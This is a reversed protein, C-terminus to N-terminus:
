SAPWDPLDDTPLQIPVPRPRRAAMQTDGGTGTADALKEACRWNTGCREAASYSSLTLSPLHASDRAIPASERLDRVTLNGLALGNDSTPNVRDGLDRFSEFTM